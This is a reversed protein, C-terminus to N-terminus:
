GCMVMASRCYKEARGPNAPRSQVVIVVSPTPAPNRTRYIFLFFWQLQVRAADISNNAPHVTATSVSDPAYYSRIAYM